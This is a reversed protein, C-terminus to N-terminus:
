PALRYTNFISLVGSLGNKDLVMWTVKFPMHDGMPKNGLEFKVTVSEIGVAGANKGSILLPCDEVVKAYLHVFYIWGDARAASISPLGNARLFAALETEFDELKSIKDIKDRLSSPLHDYDVGNKLHLNAADFERLIEQATTGELKSHLTWDCHFKLLRYQQSGQQQELLKRIGSMLYVVEVESAIGRNLLTELKKLINPIMERECDYGCFPLLFVVGRFHSPLPPFPGKKRFWFVEFTGRRSIPWRRAPPSAGRCDRM